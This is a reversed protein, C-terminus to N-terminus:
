VVDTRVSSRQQRRAVQPALSYTLFGATSGNRGARRRYRQRTAAEKRAAKRVGGHNIDAADPLTTEAASTIATEAGARQRREHAERRCRAGPRHQYRSETQHRWEYNRRNAEHQQHAAEERRLVLVRGPMNRSHMQQM